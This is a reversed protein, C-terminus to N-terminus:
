RSIFVKSSVVGNEANVTIIYLGNELNSVDLKISGSQNELRMLKAGIISFVEVTSKGEIGEITIHNQAPNPYISINAEAINSVWTDTDDTTVEIINSYDSYGSENYARVRYEYTKGPELGEAKLSLEWWVSKIDYNEFEDSSIYVLYRHGNESEEWNAVFSNETIDTANLAVPAEPIGPVSTTKVTIINSFLSEYGDAVATLRLQYETEPIAEDFMFNLNDFPYHDGYAIRGAYDEVHTSFNDTSIYIKYHEAEDVDEWNIVFWASSVHTAELAVPPQPTNEHITTVEIADSFESSHGGAVSTVLYHYTEEPELGTITHTTDSLALPWYGELPQENYIVWLNYGTTNVVSTWNATFRDHMVDTAELAVPPPLVTIVNHTESFSSMNDGQFDQGNVKYKYNTFPELGSIVLSTSETFVPLGPVLTQFDDKSVLVNYVPQTGEISSWSITFSDSTIDTAAELVPAAINAPFTTAQIYNSSPSEETDNYARIHCEYATNPSLNFVWAFNSTIIKGNYLPLYNGQDEDEYVNVWIKYHTAGEVADWSVRFQNVYVFETDLHLVPAELSKSAYTENSILLLIFASIVLLTYFTTKSNKM